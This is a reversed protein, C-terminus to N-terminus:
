ETRRKPQLFYVAGYTLIAALLAIWTSLISGNTGTMPLEAPLAAAVPQSAVPNATTGGNGGAGGSGGTPTEPSREYAFHTTACDFVMDQIISNTGENYTGQNFGYELAVAYPYDSVIQDWTLTPNGGTLDFSWWVSQGNNLVDWTQWTGTQVTGNYIPEYFLYTRDDTTSAEGDLDVYLIYAATVQPNGTSTVLRKTKYSMTDIDRIPTSGADMMGSAYSGQLPTSVYLGDITFETMGSGGAEPYRTEGTFWNAKYSKDSVSCVSPAPLKFVWTFCGFTLSKLTGEAKVGSGLSFGVASVHADPFNALWQNITGHNASGFGGEHSPAGDKVFQKASDPVWWDNGYIAEGVLIADNSGDNDFDVVIQMGPKIGSTQTYDMSPVGVESLAYDVGHYWAVKSLGSDDETMIHLGDATFNYHGKSRNDNYDMFETDRSVIKTGASQECPQAIPCTRGNDPATGFNYSSVLVGDVEFANDGLATVILNGDVVSWSYQDTNAPVVWTANDADTTNCRDSVGPTAPVPVACKTGSDAAMGFAITKVNGTFVYGDRATATLNGANDILWTVKNSDAPKVWSANALGCPDVVSPIAPVTIVTDCRVNADRFTFEKTADKDGDSWYYGFDKTAYVRLTNNIGWLTKLVSVHDPATITIIDNNPGCVPTQTIVIKTADIVRPCDTVPPEPQGAVLQALVYSRGQADNFYSGVGAGHTANVSVEIPNQGTQLRENIGPIGVYKCVYVKKPTQNQGREAAQAQVEANEQVLASASQLPLVLQALLLGVALFGAGWRKSRVNVM